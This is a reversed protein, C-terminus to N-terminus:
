MNLLFPRCLRKASSVSVLVPPWLVGGRVGASAVNALADEIRGSGTSVLRDREIIQTAYAPTAPTEALGEGTVIIVPDAPETESEGTDGSQALVQAPLMATLAAGVLFQSYGIYKRSQM